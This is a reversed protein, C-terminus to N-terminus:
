TYHHETIGHSKQSARGELERHTSTYGLVTNTRLLVISLKAAKRCSQNKIKQYIKPFGGTVHFEALSFYKSIVM